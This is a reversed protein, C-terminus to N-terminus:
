CARGGAAQGQGARIAASCVLLNQQPPTMGATDATQAELGTRESEKAAQEKQEGVWQKARLKLDQVGLEAPVALGSRIAHRRATVADAHVPLLVCFAM